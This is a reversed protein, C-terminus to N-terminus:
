PIHELHAQFRIRVIPNSGESGPHLLPHPNKPYVMVMADMPRVTYNGVNVWDFDVMWTPLFILGMSVRSYMKAGFTTTVIYIIYLIYCYPCGPRMHYGVPGKGHKKKSLRGAGAGCLWPADSTSTKGFALREGQPFCLSWDVPAGWPAPVWMLFLASFYPRLKLSCSHNEYGRIKRSQKEHPYRVHTMIYTPRCRPTFFVRPLDFLIDPNKTSTFVQSSLRSKKFLFVLYISLYSVPQHNWDRQFINTLKPIKGLYPHFYCINSVVVWSLYIYIYVLYLYFLHLGALNATDFSTWIRFSSISTAVFLDYQIGGAVWGM